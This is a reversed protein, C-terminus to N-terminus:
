ACFPEATMRQTGRGRDTHNPGPLHQNVLAPRHRIRFRGQGDQRLRYQYVALSEAPLCRGNQQLFDLSNHPAAAPSEGTALLPLRDTWRAQTPEWPRRRAARVSLSGATPSGPEIGAAIGGAWDGREIRISLGLWGENGVWIQAIIM